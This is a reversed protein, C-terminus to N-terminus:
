KVNGDGGWLSLQHQGNGTVQWHNLTLAWQREFSGRQIEFSHRAFDEVSTRYVFGSENDRILIQTANHMIERQFIDASICWAEPTRLKHRSGIVTKIFRNDELYGVIKSGVKVVRKRKQPLSNIPM